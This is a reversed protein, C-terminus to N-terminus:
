IFSSLGVNRWYIVPMFGFIDSVELLLLEFTYDEKQQKIIFKGRYTDQSPMPSGPQYMREAGTDHNRGVFIDSYM